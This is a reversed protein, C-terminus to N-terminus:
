KKRLDRIPMAQIAFLDSAKRVFSTIMDSAKPPMQGGDEGYIKFGNYQKPNHSATIMIGAFANLHRVAFSM